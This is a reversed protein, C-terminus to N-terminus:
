FSKTSAAQWPLRDQETAARAAAKEFWVNSRSSVRRRGSGAKDVLPDTANPASSADENANREVGEDSMRCARSGQVFVSSHSARWHCLPGHRLDAMQGRRHELARVEAAEIASEQAQMLDPEIAAQQDERRRDAQPNRVADPLDDERHYQHDREIRREFIHQVAPHQMRGVQAARREGGFQPPADMIAMVALRLIGGHDQPRRPRQQHGDADPRQQRGRQDPGPSREGHRGGRPQAAGDGIFVEVRELMRPHFQAIRVQQPHALM